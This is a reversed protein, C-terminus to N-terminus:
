SEFGSGFRPVFRSFALEPFVFWGSAFERGPPVFLFRRRPDRPPRLRERGFRGSFGSAPGGSDGSIGSRAPSPRGSASAPARATTRRGWIPSVRGAGGDVRGATVMGPPDRAPWDVPRDDPRPDPGVDPGDPSWDALSPARLRRRRPPRPRLPDPSDREDSDFTMSRRRPCSRSPRGM